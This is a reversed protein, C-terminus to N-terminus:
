VDLFDWLSWKSEAAFADLVYRLPPAIVTVYLLSCGRPLGRPQENWWLSSNHIRM